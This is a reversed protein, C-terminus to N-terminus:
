CTINPDAHGRASRRLKTLLDILTDREDATLATAMAAESVALRQHMEVLMVEGRETLHLANTRLNRGARREILGAEELANVLKMASSRNISMARGLATQDCGPNARVILLATVRVPTVGFAALVERANGSFELHAIQIQYGLLHELEAPSKIRM